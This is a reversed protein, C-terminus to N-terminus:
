LYVSAEVCGVLEESGVNQLFGWRGGKLLTCSNKGQACPSDELGGAAPQM